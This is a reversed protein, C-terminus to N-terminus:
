FLNRQFLQDNTPMISTWHKSSYFLENGTLKMLPQFGKMSNLDTYIIEKDKLLVKM